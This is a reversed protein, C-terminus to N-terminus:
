PLSSLAFLGKVVQIALIKQLNFSPRMRKLPNVCDDHCIHCPCINIIALQSTGHITAVFCHKVNCICKSIAFLEKIRCWTFSSPRWYDSQM